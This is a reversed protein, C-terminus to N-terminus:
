QTRGLKRPNGQDERGAPGNVRAGPGDSKGKDEDPGSKCVFLVESVALACMSWVAPGGGQPGLLAHLFKRTDVFRALPAPDIIFKWCLAESVGSRFALPM